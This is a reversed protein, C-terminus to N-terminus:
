NLYTRRIDDLKKAEDKDVERPKSQAEAFQQKLAEFEARLEEHDKRTVYKDEGEAEDVRDKADQSDEDGKNAEQAAVSEDVRDKESQSDKGDEKIDEKAKAVEETTTEPAAVDDGTKEHIQKKEEDSLKEIAALIEEFNPM